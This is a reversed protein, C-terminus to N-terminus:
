VPQCEVIWIRVGGLRHFLISNVTDINTLGVLARIAHFSTLTLPM